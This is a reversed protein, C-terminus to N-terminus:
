TMSYGDVVSSDSSLQLKYYEVIFVLLIYFSYSTM